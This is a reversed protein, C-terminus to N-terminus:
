DSYITIVHYLKVAIPRPLESIWERILFYIFMQQLVYPRGSRYGPLRIFQVIAIGASQWM